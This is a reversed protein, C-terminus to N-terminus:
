SALGPSFVSARADADVGRPESASSLTSDSYRDGSQFADAMCALWVRALAASALRDTAQAAVRPGVAIARGGMARVAAFADLDTIDDGLYLPRRDRFPAAQMLTRCASGKDVGAPKVEFVRHGALIHWRPAYSSVIEQLATLLRVPAQGDTRHHVAVCPGKHEVFTNPVGAVIHEIGAGLASPLEAQMTQVVADTCDRRIELGHLGVATSKFGAFLNDLVAIQRGSVLALAGDLQRALTSLTELLRPEVNVLDPHSALDLLTGDVDLLLATQTRVVSM